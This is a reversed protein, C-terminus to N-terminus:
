KNLSLLFATLLKRQEINLKAIASELSPELKEEVDFFELLSINLGNCLYELYEITPQKNGLEIERIYSQSVGSRTALKNITIGQKERFFKIREGVNM